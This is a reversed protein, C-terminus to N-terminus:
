KLIGVLFWGEVNEVSMNTSEANTLRLQTIKFTVKYHATKQTFILMEAPLTFNHQGYETTNEYKSLTDAKKILEAAIEKANFSTAENNIALHYVHNTDIIYAFRIKENQLDFQPGNPGNPGINNINLM